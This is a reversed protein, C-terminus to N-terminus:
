RSDDLGRTKSHLRCRAILTRLLARWSRDGHRAPEADLLLRSAVRARVFPVALVLLGLLLLFVPAITGFDVANAQVTRWTEAPFPMVTCLGLLVVTSKILPITMLQNKTVARSIGFVRMAALVLALAWLGGLVSAFFNYVLFRALSEMM